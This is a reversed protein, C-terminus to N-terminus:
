RRRRERALEDAINKMVLQTSYVGEGKNNIGQITIIGSHNYTIANNTNLTPVGRKIGDIISQMNGLSDNLGNSFGEGVYGGIGYAWKSPSHVDFGKKSTFLGKVGEVIGSAAAKLAKLKSMLGDILGQILNQGIQLFQQYLGQFYGVIGNWIGIVNDKMNIFFIVISNVCVHWGVVISNWVSVAYDGMIQLGNCWQQWGFQLVEAFVAGAQSWEDKFVIISTILAGIAVVLLTIPGGIGTLFAGITEGATTLVPLIKGFLPTIWGIVKVVGGISKGIGSLVPAILAVVSLVGLIGTKVGDPLQSFAKALDSLFKAIDAVCPLLAEGIEAGAVAIERMAQQSEASAGSYMTDMLDKVSNKEKQIAGDINGLALLADKGVDEWKTGFLEVGYQNLKVEDKVEALKRIIKTVELAGSRGGDAIRRQTRKADFGLGILAESADGAITRISFEKLADNAQDIQYVGNKASSALMNFMEDATYGMDAFKVGYEAIQDALDQNQNLGNQAGQVMLNYAEENTIGFQKVLADAGRLGEAFDIDFADQLAYGQKVVDTLGSGGLDGMQQKVLAIKDAVDEFSEGYNDTYIEKILEQYEELGGLTKNTAAAAKNTAAELNAAGAVSASVAGAAAISAGKMKGGAKSLKEGEGKLKEGMGGLSQNTKKAQTQLSKLSQEALVIERRFERYQEEKIEGKRFQETVEKEAKKLAELRTEAQKISEALVKSKQSVLEVNSPDLKLLKEVQRLEGQLDRSKSNVEGLAKELPKTDGGIEVIIGKIKKDKAM